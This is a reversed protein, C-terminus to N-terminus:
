LNMMGTRAEMKADGEKRHMQHGERRILIGTIPHNTDQTIYGNVDTYVIEL